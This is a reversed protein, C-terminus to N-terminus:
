YKWPISQCTPLNFELIIYILYSVLLAIGGGLKMKGSNIKVGIILIIISIWIIAQFIWCACM